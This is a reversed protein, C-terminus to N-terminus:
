GLLLIMGNLFSERPHILNFDSVNKGQVSYNGYQHVMCESNKEFDTRTSKSWWQRLNGKEDYKSGQPSGPLTILKELM